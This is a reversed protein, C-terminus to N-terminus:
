IVLMNKFGKSADIIQQPAANKIVLILFEVTKLESDSVYEGFLYLYRTDSLDEEMIIDRAFSMEPDVMDRVRQELKVDCYDSM